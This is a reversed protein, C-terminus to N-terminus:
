IMTIKNGCALAYICAAAIDLLEGQFESLNNQHIADLVESYEETLIGLIEQASSYPENRRLIWLAEVRQQLVDIEYNLNEKSIKM